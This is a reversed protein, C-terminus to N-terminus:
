PCLGEVTKKKKQEIFNEIVSTINELSITFQLYTKVPTHKYTHVKGFLLKNKDDQRDRAM